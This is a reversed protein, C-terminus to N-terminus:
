NRNEMKRRWLKGGVWLWKPWQAVVSIWIEICKISKHNGVLQSKQIWNSICGFVAWRKQTRSRMRAILFFVWNWIPRNPMIRNAIVFSILEANQDGTTMPIHGVFWVYMYLFLLLSASDCVWVNWLKYNVSSKIHMFTWSIVKTSQMLKIPAM